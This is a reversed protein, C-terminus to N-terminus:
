EDFRRLAAMGEEGTAYLRSRWFWSGLDGPGDKRINNIELLQNALVACFLQRAQYLRDESFVSRPSWGFDLYGQIARLLGVEPPLLEQPHWTRGQMEVLNAVSPLEDLGELLGDVALFPPRIAEMAEEQQVQWQFDACVERALRAVREYGSPDQPGSESGVEDLISELELTFAQGASRLRGAPQELRHRLAEAVWAAADLECADLAQLVAAEASIERGRYPDRGRTLRRLVLHHAFSHGQSVFETSLKGLGQILVGIENLILANRVEPTGLVRLVECVGM